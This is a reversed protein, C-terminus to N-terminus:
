LEYADELVQPRIRSRLGAETVVDVDRGLLTKLERLLRALDM